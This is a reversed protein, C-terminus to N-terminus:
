FSDWDSAGARATPMKISKADDRIKELPDSKRVSKPKRNGVDCICYKYIRYKFKCFM